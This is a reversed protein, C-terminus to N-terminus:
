KGLGLVVGYGCLCGFLEACKKIEVNRLTPTDSMEILCNQVTLLVNFVNFVNCSKRSINM